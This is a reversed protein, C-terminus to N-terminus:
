VDMLSVQKTLPKGFLGDIRRELILLDQQLYAPLNFNEEVEHL